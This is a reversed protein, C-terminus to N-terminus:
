GSHETRYRVKQDPKQTDPGIPEINVVASIEPVLGAAHTVSHKDSTSEIYEGMRYAAVAQAILPDSGAHEWQMTVAVPASEANTMSAVTANNVALGAASVLAATLPASAVTSQSASATIPAAAMPPAAVAAGNASGAVAANSNAPVAPMLTDALQATMLNTNGTQAAKAQLLQEEIASLAQFARSLLAMTQAPDNSYAAQLKSLDFQFQNSSNLFTSEQFTIGVQAMSDIFSQTSTAGSQSNQAHIATLLASDFAYDFPSASNGNISNQFANFANIFDTVATVLQQFNGSSDAKTIATQLPNDQQTHFIFTVALLHALPSFAVSSAPGTNVSNIADTTLPHITDAAVADLRIAPIASVAVISTDM